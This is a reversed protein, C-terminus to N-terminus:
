YVALGYRFIRIFWSWDWSFKTRGAAFPFIYVRAIYRFYTTIYMITMMLEVLLVYIYSLKFIIIIIISLVRFIIAATQTYSILHTINTAELIKELFGNVLYLFIHIGLIVYFGLSVSLNLFRNISGGLLIITVGYVLGLVTYVLVGRAVTINQQNKKQSVLTKSLSEILGLSGLATVFSLIATYDGLLGYKEPGLYRVLFFGAIMGLVTFITRSAINLALNSEVKM